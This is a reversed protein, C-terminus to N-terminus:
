HRGPSKYVQPERAVQARQELANEALGREQEALSLQGSVWRELMYHGVREVTGAPYVSKLVEQFRNLDLEGNKSSYTRILTKSKDDLSDFYNRASELNELCRKGCKENFIRVLREGKTERKRRKQEKAASQVDLELM